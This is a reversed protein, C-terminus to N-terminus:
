RKEKARILPNTIRDRMYAEAVDQGNHWDPSAATSVLRAPVAVSTTEQSSVTPMLAPGKANTMPSAPIALASRLSERRITSISVQVGAADLAQRIADLTYGQARLQVIDAEFDRAKRTIRGPPQLPVLKVGSGKCGTHAAEDTETRELDTGEQHKNANMREM